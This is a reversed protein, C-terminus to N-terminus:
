YKNVSSCWADMHSLWIWIAAFIKHFSDRIFSQLYHSACLALCRCGIERNECWLKGLNIFPKILVKKFSLPQPSSVYFVFTQMYPRFQMYFQLWLPLILYLLMMLDENCSWCGPFNKKLPITPPPTLSNSGCVHLVM